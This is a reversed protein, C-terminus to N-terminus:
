SMVLSAFRDAARRPWEVMFLAKIPLAGLVTVTIITSFSSPLRQGAASLRRAFEFSVELSYQMGTSLTM